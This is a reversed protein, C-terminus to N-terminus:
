VWSKERYSIAVVFPCCQIIGRDTNRSMTWFSYFPHYFCTSKLNRLPTYLIHPFSLSDYIIESYHFLFIPQTFQIPLICVGSYFYIFSFLFFLFISSSQINVWTWNKFSWEWFRVFHNLVRLIYIIRPLYM